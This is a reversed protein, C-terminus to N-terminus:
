KLLHFLVKFKSVKCLYRLNVGKSIAVFWPRDLSRYRSATNAIAALKNFRPTAIITITSVTLRVLKLRLSDYKNNLM